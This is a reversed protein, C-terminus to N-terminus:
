FRTILDLLASPMNQILFAEFKKDFGSLTSVSLIILFIGMGKKVFRYVIDIKSMHKKVLNKSIYAIILLPISASIGYVLMILAGYLIENEKAVLTLAFGLTPGSCPSWILGFLFGLFFQGLSGKLEIKSILNNSQNAVPSLIQSIKNGISPVLFILGIFLFLIATITKLNEQDLGIVKSTLSFAIGLLVFSSILGSILFLPGRKNESLSSSIVFPLASIVCPSFSTLLGALIASLLPGM